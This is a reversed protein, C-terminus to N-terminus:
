GAEGTRIWGRTDADYVAVFTEDEHRDIRFMEAGHPLRRSGMRFAPVTGGAAPDPRVLGRRVVEWRIVHVDEDGPSFPSGAYDLGLAPVIRAPTRLDGVDDLRHVLGAVWDYGGDLYHAVHDPRIVKQLVTTDTVEAVPPVVAPPTVPVAGSGSAAHGTPAVAPAVPVGASPKVSTPGPR